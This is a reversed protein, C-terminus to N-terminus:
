GAFQRQLFAAFQDGNWDRVLIRPLEFLNAGAWLIEGNNACAFRYGAKRVQQVSVDNYDSKTGYPYSFSTVPQGLIEELYSKSEHIEHHQEETTCSSLRPHTITHAGVRILGSAVLQGLEEISMQRHTSRVETMRGTLRRFEDIVQQREQPPRLTVETTLQRYLLHRATPNNKDTVNWQHYKQAIEPSYVSDAGLEWRYVRGAIELELNEPLRHSPALLLREFEDWLFEQTQAIQGTTVYVTAPTDFKELRPKAMYLNDAYGDDFTVAVAGDPLRNTQLASVLDELAMPHYNKRLIRLHEEFNEPTVALSQPDTPLTAVRHYLLIAAKNIWRRGARLVLKRARGIGRIKM